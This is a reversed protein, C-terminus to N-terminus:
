AGDPFRALAEVEHEDCLDVFRRFTDEDMASVAYGLGSLFRECWEEIYSPHRGPFLQGALKIPSTNYLKVAVMCVAAYRNM